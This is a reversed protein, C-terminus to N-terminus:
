SWYEQPVLQCGFDRSYMQCSQATQISQSNQFLCDLGMGSRFVENQVPMEVSVGCQSLDMRTGQTTHTSSMGSQYQQASFPSHGRPDQSAGWQIDMTTAPACQFYGLIEQPKQCAAAGRSSEKRQALAEEDESLGLQASLHAIYRITLRLTEIKTLTQGVPAVSAPLYTRLHHLAKTLDRMRLKEKESASQRQKSPNKSRTRTRIPRGSEAPSRAASKHPDSCAFQGPKGSDSQKSLPSFVLDMSAAPSITEPSSVSYFESDSSPCSWPCLSSEYGPLSASTDM